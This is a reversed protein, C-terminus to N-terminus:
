AAEERGARLMKVIRVDWWRNMPVLRPDRSLRCIDACDAYSMGEGSPAASVAIDILTGLVQTATMPSLCGKDDQGVLRWARGTSEMRFGTAEALRKAAVAFSKTRRM